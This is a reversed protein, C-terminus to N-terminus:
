RMNVLTQMLQDMTKITQANAQYIRQATIMNVLEATLDVNSEELAGPQLAGLGNDGPVGPKPEGSTSTAAWANDGLPQLGQPNTFSALAIQGIPSSRGNSYRAMVVGNSEMALATMDGKGYGDQRLENVGFAAGFQTSRSLDLTAAPIGITTGVGQPNIDSPVAFPIPATPATLAGEPTFQLTALPSGPGSAGALVSGNATGYVNWQNNALKQFYYTVAVERSNGDYLTVSTASHFSAGDAPDFAPGALPAVYPDRRSDLNVGASVETTAKAALGGSPVKLVVAAGGVNGSSDIEHGILRQGANNVIAGNVDVKFQGNRSFVKEKVAEDGMGPSLQFFGNGNIALDMPNSTSTITGQSFQQAVAALQTGIGLNKGGSAGIAAAYADAFEARSAKAGYTNANAINNGIVELSKATANLGSLGQQFSM